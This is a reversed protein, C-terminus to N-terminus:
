RRRTPRSTNKPKAAKEEAKRKKEYHKIFASAEAYTLWAPGGFHWPMLGYEDAM